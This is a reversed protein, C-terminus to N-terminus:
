LVFLDDALGKNPDMREFFVFANAEGNKYTSWALPLKTKPNLYIVHLLRRQSEDASKNRIVLLQVPEKLFPMTVTGKSTVMEESNALEGKLADYLSGFDCEALSFGTPLRISRSDSRITMKVLGLGGGGKGRIRGDSQRVVVSGNRYDASKIEARLLARQKFYLNAGGFDKWAGGKKSFLQCYVQYDRINSVVARLSDLYSQELPVSAMQQVASNDPAQAALDTPTIATAPQTAVAVIAASMLILHIMRRGRM